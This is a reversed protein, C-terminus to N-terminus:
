NEIFEIFIVTDAIQLKRIINKVKFYQKTEIMVTHNDKWYTQLEPHLGEITYVGCSINSFMLHVSTYTDSETNGQHQTVVLERTKDPSAIEKRDYFKPKPGTSTTITVIHKGEETIEEKREEWGTRSPKSDLYNHLLGTLSVTMGTDGLDRYYSIAESVNDAEKKNAIKGRDAIELARERTDKFLDMDFGTVKKLYSEFVTPQGRNAQQMLGKFKEKLRELKRGVYYKEILVKQREYHQAVFDQDDIILRGDPNMLIYDIAALNLVKYQDLAAQREETTRKSM